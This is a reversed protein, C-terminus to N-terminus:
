EVHINAKRVVAGFRSRAKRLQAQFEEPSQAVVPEAGILDLEKHVEPAQMIRSIEGHLRMIIERSTGASAYVGQPISGDVDLGAEAMTPVAPFIPSRSPGAIAL